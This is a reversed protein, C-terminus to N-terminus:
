DDAFLQYNPHDNRSHLLRKHDNKKKDGGKRYTNM